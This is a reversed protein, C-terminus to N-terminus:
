CGKPTLTYYILINVTGVSSPLGTSETFAVPLVLVKPFLDVALFHSDLTKEEGGEDNKVLINKIETRKTIDPVM